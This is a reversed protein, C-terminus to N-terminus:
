IQEKKTKYDKMYVWEYNKHLGKYKGNCIASVRSPDFGDLKVSSVSHYPKDLKGDKLRAVGVWNEKVLKKTKYVKKGRYKDYIESMNKFGKYKKKLQKVSLGNYFFDLLINKDKGKPLKDIFDTSEKYEKYSKNPIKNTYVKNKYGTNLYNMGKFRCYKSFKGRIFQNNNIIEENKDCLELFVDNIIDEKEEQNLLYNSEGRFSKQLIHHGRKCCSKYNKEVEIWEKFRM